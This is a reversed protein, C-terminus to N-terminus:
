NRNSWLVSLFILISPTSLTTVSIQSLDWAKSTSFALLNAPNSSSVEQGPPTVPPDRDNGETVVNLQLPVVFTFIMNRRQLETVFKELISKNQDKHRLCVWSHFCCRDVSCSFRNKTSNTICKHKTGTNGGNFVVKPDMCFLCLKAAKAVDYREENTM